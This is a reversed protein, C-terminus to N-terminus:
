PLSSPPPSPSSSPSSLRSTYSSVSSTITSALDSPFVPETKSALSPRQFVEFEWSPLKSPKGRWCRRSARRQGPPWTQSMQPLICFQIMDCFTKKGEKSAFPLRWNHPPLFRKAPLAGIQIVFIAMYQGCPLPVSRWCNNIYQRTNCPIANYQMTNCPIAHYQMTNCPKAHYQMTNFPIANYQM